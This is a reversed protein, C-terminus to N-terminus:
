NTHLVRIKCSFEELLIFSSKIVFTLEVKSYFVLILSLPFFGVLTYGKYAGCVRRLGERPGLFFLYNYGTSLTIFSARISIITFFWGMMTTQIFGM